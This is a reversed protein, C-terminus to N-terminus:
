ACCSRLAEGIDLLGHLERAVPCPPSPRHRVRPLPARGGGGRRPSHSRSPRTNRFQTRTRTPSSAFPGGRPPDTIGRSDPLHPDGSDGERGAESQRWTARATASPRSCQNPRHLPVPYYVENCAASDLHKKLEDPARPPCYPHLHTAFACRPFAASVLVRSCRTTSNRTRRASRAELSRPSSIERPPSPRLARALRSHHRSLAHYYAAAGRPQLAPSGPRRYEPTTRCVYAATAPGRRPKRPSSRAAASIVWRARAAAEVSVIAQAADEIVCLKRREALGPDFYTPRVPRVPPGCSPM